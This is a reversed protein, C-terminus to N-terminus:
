APQTQASGAPLREIDCASVGLPDAPNTAYMSQRFTASQLLGDQALIRADVHIGLPARTSATVVDGAASGSAQILKAGTAPQAITANM